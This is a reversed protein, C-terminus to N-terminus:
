LEGTVHVGYAMLADIAQQIEDIADILDGEPDRAKQKLEFYLEAKIKALRGIFEDAKERSRKKGLISM